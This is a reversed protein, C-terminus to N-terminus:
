RWTRAKMELYRNILNITLEQPKTHLSQIGHLGIRHIM